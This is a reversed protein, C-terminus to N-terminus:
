SAHAFCSGRHETLKLIGRIIFSSMIKAKAEEISIHSYLLSNIIWLRVLAYHPFDQSGNSDTMVCEADADVM